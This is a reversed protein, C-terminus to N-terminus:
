LHNALSVHRSSRFATRAARVAVTLEPIPDTEYDDRAMLPAVHRIAEDGKGFVHIRSNRALVNIGRIVTRLMQPLVGDGEIVMASYIISDGLERVFRAGEARADAPSVPTGPRLFSLALVGRPYAQLLTEYARGVAQMHNFDVYGGIDTVVVNKFAGIYLVDDVQIVKMDSMLGAEELSARGASVRLLRM